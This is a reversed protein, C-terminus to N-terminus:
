GVRRGVSRRERGKAGEWGIVVFESSYLSLSVVESRRIDWV